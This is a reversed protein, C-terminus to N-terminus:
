QSSQICTCERVRRDGSYKEGERSLMAPSPKARTWQHLTQGPYSAFSVVKELWWTEERSCLAGSLCPGPSGEASSSSGVSVGWQGCGPVPMADRRMSGKRTCPGDDDTAFQETYRYPVM